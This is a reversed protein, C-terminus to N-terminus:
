PRPKHEAHFPRWKFEIPALNSTMRRLLRDGIDSELDQPAKNSISIVPVSRRYRSDVLEHLLQYASDTGGHLDIEDIVLLDPSTLDAIVDSIASGMARRLQIMLGPLSAYRVQAGQAALEILLACALHTKGVGPPGCFTVSRRIDPEGVFRKAYARIGERVNKAAENAPQFNDFSASQFRVPIAASRLCEVRRSYAQSAEFGTAADVASRSLASLCAACFDRGGIEHRISHTCAM